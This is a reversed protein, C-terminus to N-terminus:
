FDLIKAKEPGTKHHSADHHDAEEDRDGHDQVYLGHVAKLVVAAPLQGDSDAFLRVAVQVIHVLNNWFAGYDWPIFSVNHM